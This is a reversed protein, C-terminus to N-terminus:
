FNIEIGSNKRADRAEKIADKVDQEIEEDSRSHSRFRSLLGDFEKEWKGNDLSLLYNKLTRRDSEPLMDVLFKVDEFRPTGNIIIQNM